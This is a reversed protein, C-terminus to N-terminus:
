KVCCCTMRGNQVPGCSMADFPARCSLDSMKEVSRCGPSGQPSSGTSSGSGSSGSGSGGNGGSEGTQKKKKNTNICKLAGSSTIRCKLKVASVHDNDVAAPGAATGSGTFAQSGVPVASFALLAMLVSFVYANLKMFAENLLLRRLAPQFV